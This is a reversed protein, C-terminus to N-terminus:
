SLHGVINTIENLKDVLRQGQKENTKKHIKSLENLGGLFADYEEKKDQTNFIYGLQRKLLEGAAQSGSLQRIKENILKEMQETTMQKGKDDTTGLFEYLKHYNINFPKLATRAFNKNYTEELSKYYENIPITKFSVQSVDKYLEHLEAEWKQADSKLTSVQTIDYRITELRPSYLNKRVQEIYDQLSSIPRTVMNKYGVYSASLVLVTLALGTMVIRKKQEWSCGRFGKKRVCRLADSLLQYEKELRHVVSSLSQKQVTMQAKLPQNAALFMVLIAMVIQNKNM